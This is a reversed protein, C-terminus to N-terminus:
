IGDGDNFLHMVVEEPRAGGGPRRLKALLIRAIRGDICALGLGIVAMGGLARPAVSEGLALWGLLLASVPVLLTVLLVNTAGAVALIRFYLVYAFVTCLVAIGIMAGWIDAGPVQLTWPRDIVAVLPLLVLTSGTIQGTAVQIPKLGKFRRGYIAAFAYSLAALLCAIEGALDEAGSGALVDPGILVAVGTLGIAVGAFKGPTLKEYTTLWHAVLVTFMPTTANLISALGVSIRTEGIVILTFPIVNNLLGMVLFAGWTRASTPMYDRRLLLWLNLIVASLGVRGLVVTFPPLAALMIKFFFFSSGWIAALLVLMAWERRGMALETPTIKGRKMDGFGKFQSVSM